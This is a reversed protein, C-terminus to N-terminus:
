KGYQKKSNVVQRNSPDAFLSTLYFLVNQQIIELFYVLLLKYVLNQNNILRIRLYIYSSISLCIECLSLFM